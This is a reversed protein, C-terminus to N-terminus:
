PALKKRYFLANEGDAYYKYLMKQLLYGNQTYFLIAGQNSERVELSSQICGLYNAVEDVALMLQSAIKMRRFASKVCINTIHIENAHLEAILYAVLEEKLVAKLYISHLTSDFFDNSFVAYSWGRNGFSEKEIMFIAPLDEKVCFSIDAIQM